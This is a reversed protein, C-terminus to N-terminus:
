VDALMAQVRREMRGMRDTLQQMETRTRRLDVLLEAMDAPMPNDEDSDRLGDGDGTLLWMISVNLMGAMMQLKNARPENLDQEWARVTKLKVGLKRAFTAEDIGLQGRAATLRDGFTAADNGFYSESPLAMHVGKAKQEQRGNTVHRLTMENLNLRILSSM